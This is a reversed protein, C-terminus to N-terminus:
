RFFVWEGFIFCFKDITVDKLGLKRRYKKYGVLINKRIKRQIIKIEKQYDYEEIDKFVNVFSYVELLAVLDKPAYDMNVKNLLESLTKDFNYLETKEVTTTTGAGQKWTNKTKTNNLYIFPTHKTSYRNKGLKKGNVEVKESKKDYSKKLFVRTYEMKVIEEFLPEYVESLVKSYFDRNKEKFYKYLTWIGGIVVAASAIIPIAYNVIFELYQYMGWQNMSLEFITNEM